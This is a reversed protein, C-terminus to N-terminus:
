QRCNRRRQHSRRKAHDTPTLPTTDLLVSLPDTGAHNVAALDPLGDNNFDGSALAYPNGGIAFTVPTQFTGNSNGILVDISQNSYDTYALDPIGDGNFDGVSIAGASINGALRFLRPFLAM